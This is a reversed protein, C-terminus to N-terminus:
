ASTATPTLNVVASTAGAPLRRSGPVQLEVTDGPAAQGTHGGLGNRTDLLRTTVASTYTAGKAAFGGAQDVIVNTPVPSTLCISHNAGVAVTALNAITQGGTFNVSSVVPVQMGCPYATLY